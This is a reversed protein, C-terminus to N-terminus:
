WRRVLSSMKSAAPMASAHGVSGTTMRETRTASSTVAMETARLNPVHRAALREVLARDVQDVRWPGNALEDFPEQVTAGFESTADVGVALQARELQQETM